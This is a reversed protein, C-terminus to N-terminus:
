SLLEIGDGDEGQAAAVDAILSKVVAEDKVLTRSLAFLLAGCLVWGAVIGINFAVQRGLMVILSSSILPGFGRGLDDFIAFTAFTTGRTEPLNVNMLMARINAGTVSAVAGGVLATLSFTLMGPEFNALVLLFLTGFLTTGGMLMSVMVPGRANYIRQGVIGGAFAGLMSGIGWLTMISTAQLKGMGRDIHLYDNMFTNIISWPVCGPIGQLFILRNSPITFMRLTKKLSNRERYTSRLTVGENTARPPEYALQGYAIAFLVAPLSVVVFAMRWNELAGAVFQGVAQGLGLALGAIASAESRRDAGYMDGLLSFILPSAGGIAIGTISRLLFLQWWSSVFATLLNGAQGMIVVAVFLRRRSVTDALWGILLASVGGVVYFGVAIDGGLKADREADTFNFDAAISSLNPAMVNQDAFIAAACLLLLVVTRPKPDKLDCSMKRCRMRCPMIHWPAHGRASSKESPADDKSDSLSEFEGSM